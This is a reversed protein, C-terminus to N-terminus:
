STRVGLARENSSGNATPEAKICVMRNRGLRKAQYLTRDAESILRQATFDSNGSMISVGGSISVYPGAPAFGHPIRLQAVAERVQEAIVMAGALDTEPLIM